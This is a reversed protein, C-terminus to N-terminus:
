VNSNVVFIIKGGNQRLNRQQDNISIKSYQYEKTFFQKLYIDFKLIINVGLYSHLMKPMTKIYIKPLFYIEFIM